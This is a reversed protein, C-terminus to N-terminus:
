KPPIQKESILDAQYTGLMFRLPLRKEDTSLWLRLGLQDIQPNGTSVTILQASIKENKLNLLEASSPRLRFVYSGSGLFVAVRTDNVPNTADKSPKLNFARVAYILSLVSHTGVPIDIQNAGNFAAKGSKQNFQATQNYAAFLGSFKLVIQQPSLSEPSVNATIGDNLNLIQQGPQTGTVRATLILSDETIPTNEGAIRYTFQKREKTQL